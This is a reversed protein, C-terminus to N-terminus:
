FMEVVFLYVFVVLIFKYRKGVLCIGFYLMKSFNFLVM